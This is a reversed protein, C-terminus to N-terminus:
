DAQHHDNLWAFEDASHVQDTQTLLLKLPQTIAAQISDAKRKFRSLWDLKKSPKLINTPPM